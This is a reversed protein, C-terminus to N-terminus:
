KTWERWREENIYARDADRQDLAGRVFSERLPRKDYTEDILEELERRLRWEPKTNERVLKIIRTLLGHTTLTLDELQRRNLDSLRLDTNTHRFPTTM